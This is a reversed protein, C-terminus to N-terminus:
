IVNVATEDEIMGVFSYKWLLLLKLNFDCSPKNKVIDKNSVIVQITFVSSYIM